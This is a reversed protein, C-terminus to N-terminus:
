SFVCHGEPSDRYCCRNQSNIRILLVFNFFSHFCRVGLALPKTFFVHTEPGGM